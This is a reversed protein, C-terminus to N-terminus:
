QANLRGGLRDLRVPAARQRRLGPTTGRSRAPDSRGEDPPRFRSAALRLRLRDMDRGRLARHDDGPRSAARAEIPQTGYFYQRLYHSPREVLFPVDRRREMYEKDLRNMPFSGLHHRGRLDRSPSGSLPRARGLDGHVHPEGDHLVYPQACAARARQRLRSQQVSCRTPSTSATFCSPSTPRSPPVSSPTTGATAGCLISPPAPSTSVWSGATIPTASSRQPRASPTKRVPSSADSCASTPRAGGIPRCANYARALAAPYEVQTLVALKLLHDPFLIVFDVTTSSPPPALRCVVVVVAAAAAAAIVYYNMTTQNTTYIIMTTRRTAYIQHTSHLHHASRAAANHPPALPPTSSLSPWHLVYCGRRTQDEREEEKERRRRM